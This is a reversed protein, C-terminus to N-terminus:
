LGGFRNLRFAQKNSADCGFDPRKIPNCPHRHSSSVSLQVYGSLILLRYLGFRLEDNENRPTLIEIRGHEDHLREIDEPHFIRARFDSAIVDDITLGTYDLLAQNAYIPVGGPNLVAITQPIATIRRIEREDERLKEETRKRDEIDTNTGYWRLIEGSEE